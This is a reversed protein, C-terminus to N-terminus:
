VKHDKYVVDFAQSNTITQPTDLAVRQSIDQFTSDKPNRKIIVPTEM